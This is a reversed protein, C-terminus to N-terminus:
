RSGPTPTAATPSASKHWVGQYRFTGDPWRLRSYFGLIFGDETYRQIDHNFSGRDQNIFWYWRFGQGKPADGYRIRYQPIGCHWRGDVATIWHGQDWYSPEGPHKSDFTTMFANLESLSMWSTFGRNRSYCRYSLLSVVILVLVIVFIHVKKM